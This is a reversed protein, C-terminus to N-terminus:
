ELSRQAVMDKNSKQISDVGSMEFHYEVQLPTGQFDEHSLVLLPLSGAKPHFRATTESSGRPLEQMFTLPPM